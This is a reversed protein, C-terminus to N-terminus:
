RCNGSASAGAEMPYVEGTADDMDMVPTGKDAMEKLHCKFM